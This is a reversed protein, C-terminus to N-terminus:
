LATCSLTKAVAPSLIPPFRMLPIGSPIPACLISSPISWSKETNSCEVKAVFARSDNVEGHPAEIVVNM